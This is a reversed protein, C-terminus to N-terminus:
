KPGWFGQFIYGLRLGLAPRLIAAQGDVSALAVDTLRYYFTLILNEATTAANTRYLVSGTLMPAMYPTPECFGLNVLAAVSFHLPRNKNTFNYEVGTLLDFFTLATNVRATSNGATVRQLQFASTTNVGQGDGVVRYGFGWADANRTRGGESYHITQKVPVTFYLENAPYWSYGPMAAWLGVPAALVALLVLLRIPMSTASHPAM